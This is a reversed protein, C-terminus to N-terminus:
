FNVPLICCFRQNIVSQVIYCKQLMKLLSALLISLFEQIVNEATSQLSPRDKETTSTGYVDSFTKYVNGDRVPDPLHHITEFIKKPLHPSKCITCHTAGCRKISFIYHRIHCCHDMFIKLQTLGALALSSAKTCDTPIIDPQIQKLISLFENIDSNTSSLFVNFPKDKLKLRQFLTSLMVKAPQLSNNFEEQLGHHSEAASCIAKISNCGQLIKKL